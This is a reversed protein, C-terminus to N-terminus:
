YTDIFEVRESLGIIRLQNGISIDKLLEFVRQNEVKRKKQVVAAFGNPGPWVRFSARVKLEHWIVIKARSIHRLNDLVQFQESRKELINGVRSFRRQSCRDFPLNHWLLSVADDSEARPLTFPQQCLNGSREGNNRQVNQAGVNKRAAVVDYKANKPHAVRFSARDSM